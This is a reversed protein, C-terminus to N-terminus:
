LWCVSKLYGRQSDCAQHVMGFAGRDLFALGVQLTQMAESATFVLPKLLASWGALCTLVFVTAVAPGSLPLMLSWFIRLYGAGDIRM